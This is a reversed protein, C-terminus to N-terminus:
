VINLFTVFIVVISLFPSSETLYVIIQIEGVFNATGPFAINGL